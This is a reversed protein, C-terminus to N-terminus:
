LICDGRRIRVPSEDDLALCAARTADIVISEPYMTHVYAVVSITHTIDYWASGAATCTHGTLHSRMDDLGAVEDCM